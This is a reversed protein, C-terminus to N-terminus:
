AARRAPAERPPRTTAAGRGPALVISRRRVPEAGDGSATLRLREVVAHLVVRM